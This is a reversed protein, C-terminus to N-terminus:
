NSERRNVRKDSGSALQQPQGRAGLLSLRRAGPRPPRTATAPSRGGTRGDLVRRVERDLGDLIVVRVAEGHSAFVLTAQNGAAPNPYVSFDAVPAASGM